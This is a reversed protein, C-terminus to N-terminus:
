SAPQVPSTLARRVHFAMMLRSFGTFLLGIGVLTGIAWTSSLPWSSWVMVALLISVVGDVLLWGAGHRPRLRFYFVFEMVGKLLFYAALLLTLSALGAFPHLIMFVGAFSYVLAFLVEWLAGGTSHTKWALLFHLLGALILFWGVLLAVAVGSVIPVMIAFLGVVILLVALAFAWGLNARVRPLFPDDIGLDTM